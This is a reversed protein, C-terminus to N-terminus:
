RFNRCLESASFSSSIIISIDMVCTSNGILLAILTSVIGVAIPNPSPSWMLLVRGWPLSTYVVSKWVGGNRYDQREVWLLMINRNRIGCGSNWNVNISSCLFIIHGTSSSAVVLVNLLGQVDHRWGVFIVGPRHMPLEHVYLKLPFVCPM